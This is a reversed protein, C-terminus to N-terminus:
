ELYGLSVLVAEQEATLMKALDKQATELEGRAKERAKRVAAVKEKVEAATHKSDGLVTKLDGQAQGVVGTGMPGGGFAGGPGADGTLAQRAAIVKQLKPGIVKWEEDSATLQKKVDELRIPGGFGGFGGPGGFGPGPGGFGGPGFGGGGPGPFGGFGGRTEQMMKRQEPTLIKEMKADVEKQLDELQKKQEPTLNLRDQLFGPVIQGPRPPEFPGGPGGLQQASALSATLLVVLGSVVTLCRLM